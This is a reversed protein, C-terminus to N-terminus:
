YIIFGEETTQQTTATLLKRQCKFRRTVLVHVRLISSANFAGNLAASELRAQTRRDRGTSLPSGLHSSRRGCDVSTQDRRVDDRRARGLATARTALPALDMLCLSRHLAIPGSRALSGAAWKCCLSRDEASYYLWERTIYRMVSTM